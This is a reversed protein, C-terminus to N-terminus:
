NPGVGFWGSLFLYYGPWGFTLVLIGFVSETPRAFAAPSVAYLWGASAIGPIVYVLLGTLLGRRFSGLPRLSATLLLWAALWGVLLALYSWLTGTFSTGILLPLGLM